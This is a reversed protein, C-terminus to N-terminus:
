IHELVKGGYMCLRRLAADDELAALNLLRLGFRNGRNMWAQLVVSLFFIAIMVGMMTHTKWDPHYVGPASRKAFKLTNLHLKSHLNREQNFDLLVEIGRLFGTKIYLDIGIALMHVGILALSVIVTAYELFVLGLIFLFIIGFTFLTRHFINPFFFNESWCCFYLALLTAAMGCFLYLGMKYLVLCLLAAVVAVALCIGIYLNSANPYSQTPENAQLGIWTIAGGFIFGIIAITIRFLAFGYVLLYMGTGLLLISAGIVQPQYKLKYKERLEQCCDEGEEGDGSDDNSSSGKDSSPTPKPSDACDDKESTGVNNRAQLLSTSNRVQLLSTNNSSINDNNNENGYGCSICAVILLLIIYLSRM